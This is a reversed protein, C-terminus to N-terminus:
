ILKQKLNTLFGSILTKKDQNKWSDSNKKHNQAKPGDKLQLLRRKTVLGCLFQTKTVFDFQRIGINNFDSSTFRQYKLSLNNPRVSNM